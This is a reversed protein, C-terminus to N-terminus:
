LFAKQKIIRLMETESYYKTDWYYVMGSETQTAIHTEWHVRQAWYLELNDRRIKYGANEWFKKIEPHM